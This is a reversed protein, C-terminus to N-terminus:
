GVSSAATVCVAYFTDGPHAVLPTVMQFANGANAPLAVPLGSAVSTVTSLIQGGSLLGLVGGLLGDLATLSAGSPVVGGSLASKGAPCVINVPNGIGGVTGTLDTGAVKQVVQYGSVGDVGNLGPLGNSGNTGNTGNQGPIGQIGQLGSDGKDGKAGKAGTAGTAGTAGKVGKVNWQVLKTGTACPAKPNKGKAVNTLQGGGICASMVKTSSSATGAAGMAVGPVLVAAATFPVLALALRRARTTDSL